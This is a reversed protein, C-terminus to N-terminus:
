MHTMLYTDQEEGILSFYYRRLSWLKDKGIASMCGRACCTKSVDVKLQNKSTVLAFSDRSNRHPVRRFPMPSASQIEEVSVKTAENQKNACTQEVGAVSTAAQIDNEENRLDENYDYKYIM